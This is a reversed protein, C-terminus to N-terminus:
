SEQARRGEIVTESALAVNLVITERAEGSKDGLEAKTAESVMRQVIQLSKLGHCIGYNQDIDTNTQNENHWYSINFM